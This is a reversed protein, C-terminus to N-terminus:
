AIELENELFWVVNGDIMLGIEGNRFEDIVGRKGEWRDWSAPAKERHCRMKQGVVLKM